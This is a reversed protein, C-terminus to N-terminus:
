ITALRALSYAFTPLFAGFFFHRVLSGRANGVAVVLGFLACYVVCVVAIVLFLEIPISPTTSVLSSNRALMGLHM